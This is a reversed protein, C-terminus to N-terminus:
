FLYRLNYYKNLKVHILTKGIIDELIDNNSSLSRNLSTSKQENLDRRPENSRENKNVSERHGTM